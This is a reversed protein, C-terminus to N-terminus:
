AITVRAPLQHADRGGQDQRKRVVCAAVCALGGRAARRPRRGLKDDGGAVGSVPDRAVGGSEPHATSRELPGADVSLEDLHVDYVVLAREALCIEDTLAAVLPVEASAVGNAHERVADYGIDSASVGTRMRVVLGERPSILRAVLRPQARRRRELDAGRM